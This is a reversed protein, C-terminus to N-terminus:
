EHEEETAFVTDNGMVIRGEEDALKKYGFKTYTREAAENGRVYDLWIKRNPFQKRAERHTIELFPVALGKGVYGEYLRVGFTVDYGPTLPNTREGFWVIGAVDASESLLLYVVRQKSNAWARYSELDKFRGEADEHGEYELVHPQRSKQVLQNVLQDPLESAPFVEIHLGTERIRAPLLASDITYM